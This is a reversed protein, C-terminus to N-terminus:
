DDLEKLREKVFDVPHIYTPDVGSLVARYITSYDLLYILCVLKELISGDVSFLEMYDIDNKGFFEKLITWREKTKQHDDAGRILIPCANSKISWPVIGNHCAEMVDEAAVHMKANEQLSNKFRIAAAQFGWPYYILPMGTIWEALSVAPNDGDLNMSSIKESLEKMKTLSNTVDYRELPLLPELTGLMAYLFSTFSGRPSHEMGVFRHQVRNSECFKQLKGGASFAITQCGAKAAAAVIALTEQTDGSISTAVVLTDSNATKPLHYGKVVDVRISTRSLIASFVDGINGSGGMGAFVIHSADICDLGAADSKYHEAGLRPWSDYVRYIGSRDISRLLKINM